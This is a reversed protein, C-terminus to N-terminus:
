MAMTNKPVQCVNRLVVTGETVTISMNVPKKDRSQSNSYGEGQRLRHSCSFKNYYLRMQKHMVFLHFEM